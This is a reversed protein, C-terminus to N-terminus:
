HAKTITITTEKLIVPSYSLYEKGKANRLNSEEITKRGM